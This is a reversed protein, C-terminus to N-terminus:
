ERLTGAPLRNPAKEGKLGRTLKRGARTMRVSLVPEKTMVLLGKLAPPTYDYRRRLLGQDCLAKITSGTGEDILNLRRLKKHLPAGKDLDACILWRWEEAPPTQLRRAGLERIHSEEAQDTEYIALLFARQRKNLKSTVM